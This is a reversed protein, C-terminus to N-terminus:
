FFGYLYSFSIDYKAFFLDPFIGFFLVFSILPFLVYFERLTLDNALKSKNFKIPGFLIRNMTWLMYCASSIM